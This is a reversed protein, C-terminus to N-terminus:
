REAPKDGGLLANKEEWLKEKEREAAQLRKDLETTKKWWKHVSKELNNIRRRSWEEYTDFPSNAAPKIWKQSPGNANQLAFL